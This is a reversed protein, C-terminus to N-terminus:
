TSLVRTDFDRSAVDADDFVIGKRQIAYSFPAPNSSPTNKKQELIYAAM